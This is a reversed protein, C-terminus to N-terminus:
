EPSVVSLGGLRLTLRGRELRAREVEGLVVGGGFHGHSFAAYSGVPLADISAPTAFEVTHRPPHARQSLATVVENAGESLWRTELRAAGAPPAQAEVELTEVAGPHLIDEASITEAGIGAVGMPVVDLRWLGGHWGLLLFSEALATELASGVTTGETYVTGFALGLADCAAAAADVSGAHIDGPSLAGHLPDLLIDEVARAPNSPRGEVLARLRSAPEVSSAPQVVARWRVDRIRVTWDTGPSSGLLEFRVRPAGGDPSLFHLGAAGDLLSTVDLSARHFVAPLAAKGAVALPGDTEKLPSPPAIGRIEVWLEEVAVEGGDPFEVDYGTESTAYLARAVPASPIYAFDLVATQSPLVTFDDFDQLTEGIKIRLRVSVNETDDLNRVRARLRIEEAEAPLGPPTELVIGRLAAENADDLEAGRQFTGDIATEVDTWPGTPLLRQLSLRWWRTYYPESKDPTVADGTVPGEDIRAGRDVLLFVDEGGKWVRALLQGGEEWAATESFYFDLHLARIRDFRGEGTREDTTYHAELIESGHTLVAGGTDVAAPFADNPEFATTAGDLTWAAPGRLLAMEAAERRHLVRLPLGEREVVTAMRGNASISEVLGSVPDPAHADDIQLSLMVAEHDALCWQLLTAPLLYVSAGAPHFRGAPAALVLEGSPGPDKQYVLIEDRVQVVGDGPWDLPDRLSIASAGQELDAALSGRETTFLPVPALEVTGFVQPLWPDRESSVAPFAHRLRRCLFRAAGPYGQEILLTLRGRDHVARRLTGGAILAVGDPERLMGVVPLNGDLAEGLAPMVRDNGPTLIVTLASHWLRRPFPIVELRTQRDVDVPAALDGPGLLVSDGPWALLLEWEIPPKM